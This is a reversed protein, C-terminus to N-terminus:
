LYITHLSLLLISKIYLTKTRATAVPVKFFPQSDVTTVNSNTSQTNNITNPYVQCASFAKNTCIYPV